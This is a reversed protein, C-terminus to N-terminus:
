KKTLPLMPSIIFANRGYLEINLYVSDTDNHKDDVDGFKLMAGFKGQSQAIHGDANKGFLSSILKDVGLDTIQQSLMEPIAAFSSGSDPLAPIVFSELLEDTIYIENCDTNPMTFMNVFDQENDCIHSSLHNQKSISSNIQSSRGHPREGRQEERLPPLTM